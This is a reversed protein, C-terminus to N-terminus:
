KLRAAVACWDKRRKTEIVEFGNKDLAEYVDELRDSIIGSCIFIGDKNIFDPVMESLAIIIDAM